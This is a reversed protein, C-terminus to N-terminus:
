SPTGSPYTQVPNGAYILYYVYVNKPRSEPGDNDLIQSGIGIGPNSENGSFAIYSDSLNDCTFLSSNGRYQDSVAHTHIGVADLEYTGVEGGSSLQGQQNGTYGAPGEFTLRQRTGIDPDHSASTAFGRMFMGRLDPLRFMEGQDCSFGGFMDGIVSYLAFGDTSQM